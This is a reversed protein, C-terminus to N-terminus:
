VKGRRGGSILLEDNATEVSPDVQHTSKRWSRLGTNNRAASMRRQLGDAVRVGQVRAREFIRDTQQKTPM